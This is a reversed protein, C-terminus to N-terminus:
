PTRTEVHRRGAHRRRRTTEAVVPSLNLHAYALVCSKIKLSLLGAAINISGHSYITLHCHATWLKVRLTHQHM